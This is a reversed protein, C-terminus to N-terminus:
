PTELIKLLCLFYSQQEFVQLNYNKKHFIRQLSITGIKLNAKEMVNKKM